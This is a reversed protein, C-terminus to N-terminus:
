RDDMKLYCLANGFDAYYTYIQARWDHIVRRKYNEKASKKKDLRIQNTGVNESIRLM